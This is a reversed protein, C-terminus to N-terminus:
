LETRKTIRLIRAKHRRQRRTKPHTFLSDNFHKRIYRPVFPASLHGFFPNLLGMARREHRNPIIQEPRGDDMM